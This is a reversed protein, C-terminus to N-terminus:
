QVKLSLLLLLLLAQSGSDLWLQVSVENPELKQYNTPSLDEQCVEAHKIMLMWYKYSKNEGLRRRKPKMLM